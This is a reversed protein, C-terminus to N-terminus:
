GKRMEDLAAILLRQAFDLEQHPDCGGSNVPGGVSLSYLCASVSAIQGVAQAIVESIDKTAILRDIEIQCEETWTM